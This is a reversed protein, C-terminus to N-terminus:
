PRAKLGGDVIIETGTIFCSQESLLFLVTDAINEPKGIRQLPIIKILNKKANPNEGWRKQMPTDVPGPLISNSRINKSAYQIAISKSLRIMAAKSAGYAEQPKDDGSLADVSSINVISGFKNKKMNPLIKKLVILMSKLNISFVKDWINTKIKELGLDKDFWLVGAANVVYDIRKEKKIFKGIAQNIENENSLDVQEFYIFKNRSIKPKNIDLILVKINLKALKKSVDLGIGGSGGTVLAVKGKFILKM